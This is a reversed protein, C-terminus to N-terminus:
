SPDLFFTQNRLCTYMTCLTTATCTFLNSKRWWSKGARWEKRGQGGSELRWLQSIQFGSWKHLKGQLATQACELANSFLRTRVMQATEKGWRTCKKLAGARKICFNYQDGIASVCEWANLEWKSSSSSTVVGAIFHFRCRDQEHTTYRAHDQNVKTAPVRRFGNTSSLLARGPERWQSSLAPHKSGRFPIVEICHKWEQSNDCHEICCTLLNCFLEAFCCRAWIMYFIYLLM